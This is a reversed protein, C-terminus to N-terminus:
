TLDHHYNFAVAAAVVLRDFGTGAEVVILDHVGAVIVGNAGNAGNPRILGDVTAVGEDSADVVIAVDVADVVPVIAVVATAVVVAVKKAQRHGTM